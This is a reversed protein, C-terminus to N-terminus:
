KSPRCALNSFKVKEFVGAGAIYVDPVDGFELESFTVINQLDAWNTVDCKLFRVQKSSKNAEDIFADAEPTLAVDAIILKNNQAAALRTFALCIGPSVDAIYCFMWPKRATVQAEEPLPSM